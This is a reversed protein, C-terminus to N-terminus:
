VKPALVAFMGGSRSRSPETLISVAIRLTDRVAITLEAGIRWSPGRPAGDGAAVFM